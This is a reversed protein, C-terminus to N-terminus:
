LRNPSLRDMLGMRELATIILLDDAAGGDDGCFWLGDDRQTRVLSPLARLTLYRALPHEILSLFHLMGSIRHSPFGGNPNQMGSMEFAALLQLRSGAYDPHRALASQLV